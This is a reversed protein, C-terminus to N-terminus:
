IFLTFLSPPLRLFFSLCKNESHRRGNGKEKQNRCRQSSLGQTVTGGPGALFAALPLLTLFAPRLLYFTIYNYLLDSGSSHAFIFAYLNKQLGDSSTFFFFIMTFETEM